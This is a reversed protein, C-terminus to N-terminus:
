QAEGERTVMDIVVEAVTEGSVPEVFEACPRNDVDGTCWRPGKLDLLRGLNEVASRAEEATVPSEPHFRHLLRDSEVLGLRTATLIEDQSPLTMVDSLLPVQGGPLTEVAPALTVLVVALQSRDLGPSSVAEQVYEPLVSVRWRLQARRLGPGKEPRDDPLSQYLNMASLWDSQAEAVGAALLVAEPNEPLSTYIRMAASLDGRAEAINGALRVVELDRPLGALAAEARDPQELDILARAALLVAERNNPDLSLAPQLAELAADPARSEYLGRATEIRDGVWHQYLARRREIWRKEPWLEAGRTAAGLATAEDGAQEAAAALTLWAAAYGEQSATLKALDPAPDEGGELIAAQLALLQAAPGAGMRAASSRAKTPDGALLAKWGTAVLEQQSRELDPRGPGSDPSPFALRAPPASAPASACGASFVLSFVAAVLVAATLARGLSVPTSIM